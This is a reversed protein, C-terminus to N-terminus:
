IEVEKKFVENEFLLAAMALYDSPSDGEQFSIVSNGRDTRQAVSTVLEDLTSQSQLHVYARGKLDTERIIETIAQHTCSMVPSLAVIGHATTVFVLANEEEAVITIGVEGEANPQWHAIGKMFRPHGEVFRDIQQFANKARTVAAPVVYAQLEARAELMGWLRGERIDAEIEQPSRRYEFSEM